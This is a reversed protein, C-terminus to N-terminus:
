EMILAELHQLALSYAGRRGKAMSYWLASTPSQAWRAWTKGVGSYGESIWNYRAEVAVIWQEGIKETHWIHAM